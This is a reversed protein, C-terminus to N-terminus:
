EKSHLIELVEDLSIVMARTFAIQLEFEENFYSKMGEDLLVYREHEVGSADIGYKVVRAVEARESTPVSQKFTHIKKM